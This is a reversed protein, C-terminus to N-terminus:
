PVTREARVAAAAKDSEKKRKESRREEKRRKREQIQQMKREIVEDSQRTDIDSVEQKFSELENLAEDHEKM